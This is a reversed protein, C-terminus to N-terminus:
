IKKFVFSLVVSVIAYQKYLLQRNDKAGGFIKELQFSADGMVVKDRGNCGQKEM